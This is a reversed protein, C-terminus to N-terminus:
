RDGSQLNKRHRKEIYYYAFEVVLSKIVGKIRGDIPYKFALKAKYFFSSRVFRDYAKVFYEMFCTKDYQYRNKIMSFLHANMRSTIFVQVYTNYGDKICKDDIRCLVDYYDYDKKLSVVHTCTSDLQYYDYLPEGIYAVKSSGSILQFNAFMDCFSLKSEDYTIGLKEYLERKVLKNWCFGELSTSTLFKIKAETALWVESESVPNFWKLIHGDKDVFNWACVSIEANNNILYRYMKEIMDPHMYDDADCFMIYDGTTKGLGINRAHAEGRNEIHIVRLREDMLSLEDLRQGTTDTSGDDIVVIEIDTYTQEIISRVSREITQESNYVPVIVSILSM